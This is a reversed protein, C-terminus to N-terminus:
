TGGEILVIKNATTERDKNGNINITIVSYNRM